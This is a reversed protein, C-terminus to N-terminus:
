ACLGNYAGSSDCHNLLYIGDKSSLLTQVININTSTYMHVHVM